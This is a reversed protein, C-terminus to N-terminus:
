IRDEYMDRAPKPKKAPPKAHAKDVAAPAVAPEALPEAASGPAPPPPAAPVPVPTVTIAPAPAVAASAPALDPSTPRTTVALGIGAAIAAAGLAIWLTRRMPRSISSVQGVSNGLTTVADPRAAVAIAVDSTHAPTVPLQGLIADCAQQLETMSSFREDPNKALCRAILTDIAPAVRASVKSPVPPPERLHAAIIAGVGDLDFPPKGIVLHYLVCGLSYIDTRQDIKGANCQEPSMYAPTGMVMGTRTQFRDAGADNGLKAIGFDLIKPREGALAEGDRVMFLNEPKLDRHVINAAHAAALSSAIQRTIRVADYSSLPGRKRLRMSLSEGDLYEMVLFATDNATIGFDYIHVIGPDEVASTARAENFFREVNERQAGRERHLVKIAARRGILSHEGLYVVGMGGEGLKRVVRYPGFSSESM